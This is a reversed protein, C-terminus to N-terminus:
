SNQSNTNIFLLLTQIKISTQISRAFRQQNYVTYRCRSHDFDTMPNLALHCLQEPSFIIVNM